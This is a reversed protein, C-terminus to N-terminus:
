NVGKPATPNKEASVIEGTKSNVFAMYIDSKMGIDKGAKVNRKAEILENDSLKDLDSNVFTVFYFTGEMDVRTSLNQSVKLGNLSVKFKEEIAKKAIEVAEEKNVPADEIQAIEPQQHKGIVEVKQVNDNSSAYTTMIGNGAVLVTAVGLTLAATVIKKRM